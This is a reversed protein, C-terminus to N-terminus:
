IGWSGLPHLDSKEVFKFGHSNGDMAVEEGYIYVTKIGVYM